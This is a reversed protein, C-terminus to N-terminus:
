VWSCVENKLNWSERPPVLLCLADVNMILLALSKLNWSRNWSLLFGSSRTVPRSYSTYSLLYLLLAISLPLTLISTLLKFGRSLDFSARKLYPIFLLVFVNNSPHAKCYAILEVWSLPLFFSRLHRSPLFCFFRGLLLRSPAGGILAHLIYVHSELELELELEMPVPHPTTIGRTSDCLCLLQSCDVICTNERFEWCTSQTWARRRKTATIMEAWCWTLPASLPQELRPSQPTLFRM